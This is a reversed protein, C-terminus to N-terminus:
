SVESMKKDCAGLDSYTSRPGHRLESAPHASSQEHRESVILQGSSLIAQRNLFKLPLYRDPLNQNMNMKLQLRRGAAIRNLEYELFNEKSEEERRM